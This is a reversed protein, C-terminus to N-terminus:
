FPKIKIKLLIVHHVLRHGFLILRKFAILPNFGVLLYVLAKVSAM